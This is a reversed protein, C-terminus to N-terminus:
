SLKFGGVMGQLEDALNSLSKSAQASEIAGSSTDEAAQEIIVLNQSIETAIVSQEEVSAAVQVNMDNISVISDMIQDLASGTQVSQEVTSQAEDRSREMEKVAESTGQQLVNIMEQIENTSERTRQALGRVEDAVVAFGRGQEGARAAEIAANLALLNTQESIGQIVEIVSGIETSNKELTKIVAMSNDVQSALTEISSLTNDVIGKGSQAHSQAERAASASNTAHEVVHDLSNSMEKVARAVDSTRQKQEEITRSAHASIVSSQEANKVLGAGTRAIGGILTHLRQSMHAVSSYIGTATELNNFQHTLDGNSITETIKAIENPEGGIPRRIIRTVYFSLALGGLVGCLSFITVVNRANESNAQAQPGLADQTAKVSLKVDEVKTALMPGITNLTNDVTENRQTIIEKVHKFANLYQIYYTETEDLMRMQERQEMSITDALNNFSDIFNTELEHLAQEYENAQNTVLYKTVFLRGLSLQEQAIGALYLSNINEQKKILEILQSMAQRMKLGAPTLRENVITHREQILYVVQEFGVDYQKFLTAADAINKARTPQQISQQSQKLFGEMVERQAQYSALTDSADQSLYKAVNLRVMLMSSELRAALNTEKALNRYDKFNSFGKNLGSFAVLSIIALLILVMGFSLMLQKNLSARAFM